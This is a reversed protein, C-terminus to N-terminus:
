WFLFPLSFADSGSDTTFYGYYSMIFNIILVGPGSVKVSVVYFIDSWKEIKENLNEYILKSEPNVMGIQIHVIHILM